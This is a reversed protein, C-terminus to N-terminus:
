FATYEGDSGNGRAEIIKGRENKHGNREDSLDNTKPKRLFNTEGRRFSLRM